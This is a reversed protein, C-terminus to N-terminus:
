LQLSGVTKGSVLWYLSPWPDYSSVRTGDTGAGVPIGMDLMKRVPPAAKAAEAGYRDIFYEGAFVTRGDVDIVQTDNGQYAEIEADDGIFTGDKVAFATADQPGDDGTFINGANMSSSTLLSSIRPSLPCKKPM